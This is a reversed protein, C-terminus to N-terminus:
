AYQGAAYGSSWAWQLNYGGLQGTVDLIEGIFYLGPVTKVEMTKSSLESTDVGGVTIEAKAYGESNEFVVEWDSLLHAINKFENLSYQNLPKNILFHSCLTECLRAPIFNILFNKLTFNKHQNDKLAAFINVDPILNIRVRMKPQWYSSIQLIAPGSLGKHTFLINERFRIDELSVIADLSVGALSKFISLDKKSFTLPVLGPHCNHIKIGFQRAIRYGFDTAGLRPFSLGGTAIVLSKSRFEGRSTTIRFINNKAINILKTSPAFRVKYRICETKLAEVVAQSSKDCFLQGRKKESYAIKYKKLLACFDHPTYNALASKAFHPNHSIYNESNNHINAFNCRGGGSVSIKKAPRDNHDLILVSRGRKGAEIACILGSAGAGIIIVDNDATKM